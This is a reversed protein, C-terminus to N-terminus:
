MLVEAWDREPFANIRWEATPKAWLKGLVTIFPGQYQFSNWSNRLPWQSPCLQGGQCVSGRANAAHQSAPPLQPHPMISDQCSHVKLTQKPCEQREPYWFPRPQQPSRSKPATIWGQQGAERSQGATQWVTSVDEREMKEAKKEIDPDEKFTKSQGM